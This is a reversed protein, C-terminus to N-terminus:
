SLLKKKVEKAAGTVTYALFVLGVTSSANINKAVKTVLNKIGGM